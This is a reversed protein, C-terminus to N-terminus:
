LLNNRLYEFPELCAFLERSKQQALILRAPQNELNPPEWGQVSYNGKFRQSILRKAEKIEGVRTGEVLILDGEKYHTDIVHAAGAKFAKDLHNEAFCIVQASGLGANGLAICYKKNWQTQIRAQCADVQPHHTVICTHWKKTVHSLRTTHKYFGCVQRLFLQFLNLKVLGWGEKKDYGLFIKHYGLWGTRIFKGLHRCDHGVLAQNNQLCQLLDM